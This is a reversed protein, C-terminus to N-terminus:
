LIQLVGLCEKSVGPRIRGTESMDEKKGSGIISGCKTWYNANDPVEIGCDTYYGV